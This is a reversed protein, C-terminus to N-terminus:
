DTEIADDIACQEKGRLPFWRELATLRTVCQSRDDIFEVTGTMAREKMRFSSARM